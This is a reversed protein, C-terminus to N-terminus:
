AGPQVTPMVSTIPTLPQHFFGSAPILLRVSEGLPGRPGSKKKNIRNEFRIFRIEDIQKM